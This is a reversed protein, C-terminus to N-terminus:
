VTIPIVGSGTGNITSEFGLQGAGVLLSDNKAALQGLDFVAFQTVLAGTSTLKLAWNLQSATTDFKVYGSTSSASLTYTATPSSDPAGVTGSAIKANIALTGSVISALVIVSRPADDTVTNSTQTSVNGSSAVVLGLDAGNVLQCGVLNQRANPLAM